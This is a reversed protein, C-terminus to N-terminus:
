LRWPSRMSRTLMRNAVPDNQFRQKEPDWTLKRQLQTAMDSLHCFTDVTIADDITCITKARSKICDLFNAAHDLSKYLEIDNPGSPSDLLSRPNAQIRGRAVGVWGQTGEFVTGHAGPIGFRKKWSSASPTGKFKLPIGSNTYHAEIDWDVATDCVGEDPFIGTGQIEVPGTLQESAGWFAIDLPHVGWGAIWGLCYDSIFPWVKPAGSITPDTTVKNSCRDKTYPTFPAPGLWMDYDLGDPVRAVEVSGGSRSVPSWVYVTKLEGIKGNRALECARRFKADSRQQTGFQFVTGHRRVADRLTWDEHLSLGLPKELYVDKGARIAALANLVHWHDPTAIVVADIDDRAILDRFDNYEDCGSYQKKSRGAAYHSEIKSSAATRREAIVDSVAVVQFGPLSLFGELIQRGRNGVGIFGLTVRDSPAPATKGLALCPSIFPFSASAAATAGASASLFRRRNMIRDSNM